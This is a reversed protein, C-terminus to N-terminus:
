NSNRQPISWLRVVGDTGIALCTSDPRWALSWVGTSAHGFRQGRAIKQQTKTDWLCVSMDKHRSAVLTGDPSPVLAGLGSEVPGGQESIIARLGAEIEKTQMAPWGFAKFEEANLGDNAVTDWAIVEERDRILLVNGGRAWATETTPSGPKSASTFSVVARVFMKHTASSPGQMEWLHVHGGLSCTAFLRGDPSWNIGEVPGRFGRASLDLVVGTDVEPPKNCGTVLIVTVAVMGIIKRM